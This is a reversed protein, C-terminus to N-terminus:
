IEKSVLSISKIFNIYKNFMYSFRTIHPMTTCKCDIGEKKFLQVNNWLWKSKCIGYGAEIAWLYPIIDKSCDTYSSNSVCYFDGPVNWTPTEEIEWPSLGPKIVKIMDMRRWLAAQFNIFYKKGQEMKILDPYKPSVNNQGTSTKFYVVSMQSDNDMYSIFNNIANSDVNGLLFFDELFFLVYESEVSNLAFLLRDSWKPSTCNITKVGFDSYSLTETLLYKPYNCDKWYKNLLSFFPMWAERYKDCSSVIISVKSDVMNM